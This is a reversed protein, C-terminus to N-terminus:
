IMNKCIDPKGKKDNFITKCDPYANCSWFEGKKGKLKRLYGKKCIPCLQIIPKNKEDPFAADCKPYNTCGWFYGNSGKRRTLASKCKPCRIINKPEDINIHKASDVLKLIGQKQQEFFTMLCIKNELIEELSNEWIATTDPYTIEDPLIKIMMESLETPVLFKKDLAIFNKKLLEDIIGARTAETGIGSVNKLQVKLEPSKVYKHIEKMAQLLTSATFRKPPTTTKELCRGDAYKLIEGKTIVPLAKDNEKEEQKEISSYIERWGPTIIVKGTATFIESSCEIWLKTARYVHIPYFQAAYAQAVMYYLNKQVETLSEFECPVRTPIIAHHASIKKDNWARSKISLNTKAIIQDLNHYSINKLNNLIEPVDNFQNEPLFDCDSRPYTTFKKEYLQQMADLVTQPDYGYRKGADIQLSSLSYPLRQVEKKETEEVKSVAGRSYEAATKIKQLLDMAVNKDLLRNESDLQCNENPQWTSVITDNEYLWDIQVQYHIVPKFIKIEHERRVVLAMTPTKVRGINLVHQHGANRAAITYARSLNMGVLWDARSRALASNKLGIFDSNNKLNCLAAKISKEDLANLLLRKVPKKNGVYDLIEDILLQGERDPDGANIIEDTDSILKKIIQFQQKCNEAVILQWVKPIIPLDELRWNKYADDYEDPNKQRLIHGYAWTVIDNGIQLYGNKRVPTGLVKAIEAGMNPKEAIYLRM